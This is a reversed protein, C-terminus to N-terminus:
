VCSITTIWSVNLDFSIGDCVIVTHYCFKVIPAQHFHYFNIAHRRIFGTCKEGGGNQTTETGVKNTSKKMSESNFKIIFPILLPFLVSLFIQYWLCCDITIDSDLIRSRSIYLYDTNGLADVDRPLMWAGPCCYPAVTGPLMVPSQPVHRAPCWGMGM